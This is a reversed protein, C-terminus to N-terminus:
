IPCTFWNLGLLHSSVNVPAGPFSADSALGEEGEPLYPLIDALAEPQM